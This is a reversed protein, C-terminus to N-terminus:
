LTCIGLSSFLIMNLANDAALAESIKTSCFEQIDPPLDHPRGSASDGIIM